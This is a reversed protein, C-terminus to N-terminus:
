TSARGLSQAPFDQEHAELGEQDIHQAARDGHVIDILGLCDARGMAFREVPRAPLHDQAIMAAEQGDGDAGQGFPHDHGGAYWQHLHLGGIRAQGPQRGKDFRRQQARDPIGGGHGRDAALAAQDDGGPQLLGAVIRLALQGELQMIEAGAPDAAPLAASPPM